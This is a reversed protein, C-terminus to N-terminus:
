LEDRKKENEKEEQPNEEQKPEEAETKDGVAQEMEERKEDLPAAAM